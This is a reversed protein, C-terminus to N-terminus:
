RFKNYGFNIMVGVDGTKGQRAKGIILTGPVEGNSNPAIKKDRHILIVCDADQEFAGCDKLQSITPMDDSRDATRNLQALCIIPIDLERTIKKIQDSIFTLERIRGEHKTSSDSMQQIYDLIVLDINHQRKCRKVLNEFKFLDRGSNESIFFDYNYVQQIGTSLQGIEQDTLKGKYLNPGRIQARMSLHKEAIEEAGMENTFLLVKKNAKLAADAFNLGLTTKGMSTRAGVIYYKGPLWGYISEDLEKIGTSIGPYIGQDYNIKRQEIKPICADLVENYKQVDQDKKENEYEDTVKKLLTLIDEISMTKYNSVLFSYSQNLKTMLATRQICSILKEVADSFGLFRRDSDYDSSLYLVSMPDKQHLKFILEDKECPLISKLADFIQGRGEDLFDKGAIRSGIAPEWLWPELMLHAIVCKELLAQQENGIM